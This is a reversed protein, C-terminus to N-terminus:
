TTFKRSSLLCSSLVVIDGSKLSLASVVADKIPAVFKSIGGVLEGNEDIRFWYGKNGAVVEVDALTKDIFKRSEKFDSVVVAKICPANFPEFGCNSLVDTVDKVTLDIRLDPKDTGYKEMAETYPIRMFPASSARNYKGYKAFIPPLVDECIAFVDEQSAFAMEM